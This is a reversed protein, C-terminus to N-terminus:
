LPFPEGGRLIRYGQEVGKEASLTTTPVRLFERFNPNITMERCQPDRTVALGVPIVDMITQMEGLRQELDRNLRLVEEEARVRLLFQAVEHGIAAAMRVIAE